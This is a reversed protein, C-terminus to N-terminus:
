WPVEQNGYDNPDDLDVPPADAVTEVPPTDVARKEKLWAEYEARVDIGKALLDPGVFLTEVLEAEPLDPLVLVPPTVFSGHGTDAYFPQGNRTKEGEVSLWFSWPPLQRKAMREGPKHVRTKFGKLALALAKGTLGKSCLVVPYDLGEIFCLWENYIQAGPRWDPLFKRRKTGDPATEPEFAQERKGILALTLRHVEYGQEGDFRDSARWPAPLPGPHEDLKTYFVGPTRAQKVGNFWWIRPPYDNGSEYVPPDVAVVQDVFSM